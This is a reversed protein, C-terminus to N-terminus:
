DQRDLRRVDRLQPFLLAWGAAVAVSSIGGIVVAPVAGIWAAVFGARMDGLENSAGLFVINVANVRGRVEDPTWIQLVTERIYVSIMDFAGILALAIVSLWALQSLGFVITFVGFLGVSVLLIRGAHDRVPSTALFVAMLVAGVGPAARLMGLAWPGADLVDRAFIPLLAVASGLFVAFLDLSIAGLVVKQDRIYRLGAFLSDFTVKTIHSREAPKPITLVLATAVALMLASVAYTFTAGIGYLLGGAVPGLISATQWASSNWAVANPFVRQPVLNVVLSQSAPAFFARAIGFGFLAVFIPMPSTLGRWSFYLIALACLFALATSAAMVTRRGYRDAVTGTVLVLLLLPLFQVLGIIGLDLPDRTLDYVQWGVAVAVVYTAFTTAFRATWYKVYAPYAFAEFRGPAPEGTAGDDSMARRYANQGAPV